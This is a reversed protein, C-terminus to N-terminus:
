NPACPPWLPKEASPTSAGERKKAKKAKTKKACEYTEGERVFGMTERATGVHGCLSLAAAFAM